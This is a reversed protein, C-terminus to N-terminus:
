AAENAAELELHRRYLDLLEREIRRLEREDGRRQAGVRQAELIAARTLIARAETIM